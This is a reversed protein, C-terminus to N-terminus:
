DSVGGFTHDLGVAKVAQNHNRVTVLVDGSKQHSRGTEVQGSDKDAATWHKSAVNVAVLGAEGAHKLGGAFNGLLLQRFVLLFGTRGAAGAGAHVGGVGHVAQRLDKSHTERAVAGDRCRIRCPKNEGLM